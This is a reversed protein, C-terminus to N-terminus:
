GLYYKLFKMCWTCVDYLEDGKNTCEICKLRKQELIMIIMFTIDYDDWKGHSSM